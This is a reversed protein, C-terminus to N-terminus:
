IMFPIRILNGTKDNFLLYGYNKGFDYIEKTIRVDDECYKMVKEVNGERFWKVAQLGDASKAKGLTSKALSDLSIRFGITEKIKELIDFTPLALLNVNTYPQLVAWDFSKINFGVVLDAKSLDNILKDIKDETYHHYKNDASSYLVGVAFKLLHKNNWGGVEQAIYQTELDFCTINRFEKKEIKVEMQTEEKKIIIQKERSEHKEHLAPITGGKLINIIHIAAQKDLPKNGNGCKPLQICSPCGEDCKCDVILEHAFDMLKDIIEYARCSLGMGGPHGDYIFIVAKGLQEHNLTSLGGIDERDCMAFLPFVAVIAHETAHLGGEIDFLFQGRPIKGFEIWLGTTEYPFAPLDLHSDDIIKQDVVRKKAYGVVQETVRITGYHITAKGLPKSHITDIIEITENRKSETYYDASVERVRVTKSATDLELVEHQIGNHLYIACPHCDAFVRPSDIEGKIKGTSDEMIVYREGTSRISVFRSPNKVRSIWEVQHSDEPKNEKLEDFPMKAWIMGEKELEILTDKMKKPFLDEDSISIPIEHAACLLHSKLVKNNEEDIIATEYNLKFFSKPHKMFYQDLADNLGIFITISDKKGRGARGSRQWTSMVTGPYGVLICIDLGGIDIGVELASTSIVGLIENNFLKQEINRREEPLYGARYSAIKGALEPVEVKLWESMLETIKRAKTFAITKYGRQIALKLIYTAETYPSSVPNWLVFYKSARPAFSKTIFKFEAPILKSIFAEPNSMTASLVIFQPKAGYYNCIRILRRMVHSVHSGFIGTYSHVEDVVIYKLNKFLNIWGSHYSLIGLHLMDPNTIIISPLNKKIKSRQSATTDGDYISAKISRIKCCDAFEELARLQDQSLAKTPFFYLAKSDPNKEIEELIPINYILTKGSAAPTFVGLNNGKRIEEIGEAQHLFLNEIGKKLLGNKISESLPIEKFQPEESHIHEVHVIRRRCEFDDLMEKVFNKM